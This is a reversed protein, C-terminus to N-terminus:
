DLFIPLCRLFYVAALFYVSHLARGFSSVVDTGRVSFICLFLLQCSFLLRYFDFSLCPCYSFDIAANGHLMEIKKEKEYHHVFTYSKSLFLFFSISLFSPLQPNKKTQFEINKISQLPIM